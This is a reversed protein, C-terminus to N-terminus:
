LMCFHFLRFRDRRPREFQSRLHLNQLRYSKLMELPPCAGM